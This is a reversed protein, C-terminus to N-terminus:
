GKVKEMSRCAVVHSGKDGLINEILVQGRKVPAKVRLTHIQKVAEMVGDKPIPQSVKVPLRRWLGGEIFITTSVGRRPDSFEQHAYKAGRNCNFGSVEVIEKGKHSLQLPCGIPCRICTYEQTKKM